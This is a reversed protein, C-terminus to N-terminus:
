KLLRIIERVTKKSDNHTNDIKIENKSLKKNIHKKNLKISNEFGRYGSDRSETLIRKKLEKDNNIVLTVILYKKTKLKKILEKIRKDTLGILIINKYNYKLYNKVIFCLNEFSINEEKLNKKKWKPDLHFGRLWDLEIYPSFNLKEKLLKGITTKGTGQSGGIFIIDIM